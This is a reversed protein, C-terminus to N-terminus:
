NMLQENNVVLLLEKDVVLFPEIEHDDVPIM